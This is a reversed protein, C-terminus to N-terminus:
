VAFYQYGADQEPQCLKLLAYRSAKGVSSARNAFYGPRASLDRTSVTRSSDHDCIAGERRLGLFERADM